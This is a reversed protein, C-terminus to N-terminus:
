PSCHPCLEHAYTSAWFDLNDLSAGLERLTHLADRELDPPTDPHAILAETLAVQDVLFARYASLSM